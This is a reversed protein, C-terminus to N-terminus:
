GMRKLDQVILKSGTKIEDIWETKGTAFSALYDDIEVDFDKLRQSTTFCYCLEKSDTGSSLTASVKFRMWYSNYVRLTSLETPASLDATDYVINWLYEDDVSWQMGGSRGLTAGSVSTGDLFDVCARWTTGDWYQASIVSSNTNVTDMHVFLNTFPYRQAVYIYDTNALVLGITKTDDQNDLSRDVLSASINTLVRIYNLLM